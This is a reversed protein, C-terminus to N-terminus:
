KVILNVLRGPIVIIKAVEKGELLEKIKQDALVANEVQERSFDKSLTIKTKMKSNIQVGYEIEDMTLYQEECVPYPTLFVSKKNGALSWLEECFHPAMPALLLILKQEVEKFLKVNKLEDSIADYKYMANVLEMIRAVATNFSFNDMDRDVCKIAYNLAYLLEKEDKNIDCQKRNPKLANIKLCLREVRDTFKAVSKIGDDNWPGGEVYSFGFLLYLRFIDSGYTEVYDDPSIVNGHSKSMRNGDPGLIVGQHTLSKFPEDFNLYGMDRLAKTIFRAYLLHMCAHEAGGVYKDVPLMKNIIEPNFPKESDTADPYRLYYWSSCVFTDLTDPDRTADGGCVPCKTHMFGDHKALPSKGDPKFEVDYPLTVPLDKEPVPVIGCKECYVIPIPAGWYRQRSVLWDRLRYNVKSCGKNLESLRKLVARRGEESTLGDFSLSNIMIGDEVYPLEDDGKASHIVRTVPLGYKKAFKFDREDHAPVGMVAGTGYSNLVYDAIYVPVKKDNIPNVAYAGIFVGTKERVSSLREIEDIKGTNEIYLEVAERQEPSCLKKVLKHEPALVVYSVGFLTDARTTFVRIKDEGNEALFEIEGGTSKGIWNRQMAKTKEPWDLDNLGRLLEEAYDTIKFFWQTLDKRTVQTGCRECKGDVVQENALVTACSPCWNVPAEKRYALGKHYLQLFLWQTWKYYDPMCTKIEASWDFMAGMAKLQNEMTEINKVTSDQPHVGTKIAYNEAPLGFADFGMPQFVEYGKMKKYRAFSDTPGYNYWHGVHLKAGSPYSFMELCYFKRDANKKNFSNLKTAEWKAQWKKEVEKMDM